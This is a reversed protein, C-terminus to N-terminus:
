QPQARCVELFLLVFDVVWGGVWWLLGDDGGGCAADLSAPRRLSIAGRGDSGFRAGGEGVRVAVDVDCVRVGDGARRGRGSEGGARGRDPGVGDGGGPPTQAAAHGDLAVVNATTNAHRFHAAGAVRGAKRYAVEHPEYFASGFDHHVADAFAFVEVADRVEQLKRPVAGPQPWCLGGNYGYHASRQNFKAFFRADDSPFDPCSLAEHLDGGFYPALPSRSPDIPRDVGVYPKPELGFWWHRGLADDYRAAMLRGDHAVTYNLLAIGNQRLNSLCVASRATGRAAGLAPLLLGILLAIISIVVLLEILTFGGVWGGVWGGGVARVDRAFLARPRCDGPRSFGFSKKVGRKM